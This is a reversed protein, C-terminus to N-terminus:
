QSKVKDVIGRYGDWSPHIKDQQVSTIEIVSDGFASAIDRVTNQIEQISVKSAPNNGYPLIWFVKKSVIKSRVKLLELKTNVGSHDNTGLSIVTKDAGDTLIQWMQNWQWSNIGGKGYLQCDKWFMQTGVAISDGLIMCEFMYEGINTTGPTPNSGVARENCILREVM